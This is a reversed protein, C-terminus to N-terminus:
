FRNSIVTEGAGAWIPGWFSCSHDKM